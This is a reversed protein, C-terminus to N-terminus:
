QDVEQIECTHPVHAPKVNGVVADLGRVDVASPDAVRVLVHLWPRADGPPTTGPTLSAVVGGSETVEVEGDVVLQVAERVGRVTGRWRHVSAMSAIVTRTRETSWREDPELGVWGTLWQLFDDPALAPDVYAQLCDLTSYVPAFTQDFASAFRVFLDDDLLVGPLRTAVPVASILDPVAGRM